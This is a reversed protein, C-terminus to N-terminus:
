LLGKHKSVFWTWLSRRPEGLRNVKCFESRIRWANIEDAAQEARQDLQRSKEYLFGLTQGAAGVIANAFSRGHSLWHRLHQAFPDHRLEELVQNFSAEDMRALQTFIIKARDLDLKGDKRPLAQAITIVFDNEKGACMAAYHRKWLTAADGPKLVLLVMLLDFRPNEKLIKEVREILIERGKTLADRIGGGVTAAITERVLSRFEGFINAM